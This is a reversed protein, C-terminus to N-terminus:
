EEGGWMNDWCKPCIGSILLERENPSLEPAVNQIHEGFQWRWYQAETITVHNITGCMPCKCEVRIEDM